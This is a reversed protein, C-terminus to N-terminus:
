KERKGRKNKLENLRRTRHKHPSDLLIDDEKLNEKTLEKIISIFKENETSM